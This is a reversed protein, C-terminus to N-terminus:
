FCSAKALKINFKLPFQQHIQEPTEAFNKQQITILLFQNTISKIAPARQVHGQLPCVCPDAGVM